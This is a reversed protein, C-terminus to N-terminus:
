EKLPLNEVTYDREEPLVYEGVTEANWLKAEIVLKGPEKGALAEKMARIAAFGTALHDPDWTWSLRGEEIAEIAGKDGNQGTVIVGDPNDVTAITKGGALLAASVGLASEDNYCWVAEVEPYKTLLPEFVKQSGAANDAENNTENIIELGYKEAAKSFCDSLIKTSEALELGIMITKAHPHIKAIEKASIDQPGGPECAQPEWWM